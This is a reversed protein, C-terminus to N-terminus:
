RGRHRVGSLARRGSDSDIACNVHTMNSVSEGFRKARNLSSTSSDDLYTAIEHEPVQGPIILDSLLTRKGEGLNFVKWKAGDRIVDVEYHGYIDFRM